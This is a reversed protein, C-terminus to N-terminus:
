LECALPPNGSMHRTLQGDTALAILPVEERADQGEPSQRRGDNRSSTSPTHAHRPVSFSVPALQRDSRVHALNSGEDLHPDQVYPPSSDQDVQSFLPPPTAWPVHEPLERTGGEGREDVFHPVRRTRAQALDSDSDTDYDLISRTSRHSRRHRHDPHEERSLETNPAPAARAAAAPNQYRRRLSRDSTIRRLHPRQSRPLLRRVDGQRRGPVSLSGDYSPPPSQSSSSSSSLSSSLLSMHSDQQQRRSDTM